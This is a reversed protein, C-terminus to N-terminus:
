RRPCQPCALQPTRLVREFGAPIEFLTAAPEVGIQIDYIEVISKTGQGSPMIEGSETKITLHLEPSYWARGCEVGENQLRQNDICVVRRIVCAIGNVMDNGIFTSPDPSRPTLPTRRRQMLTAVGRRYDLSFVEGTEADTLAALAHDDRIQGGVVPSRIVLTSGSSSRYYMGSSETMLTQGGGADVKFSQSKHRAIVSVWGPQAILLVQGALWWFAVSMVGRSWM